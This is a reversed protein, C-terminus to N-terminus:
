YNGAAVITLTDAYDNAYATTTAVTVREKLSVTDANTYGSRSVFAAFSTGNFAGAHTGDAILYESNYSLTGTCSSCSAGTSPVFGYNTAGASLADPTGDFTGTTIPTGPNSASALAGNASKVYATYGLPSNTGVVMNVGASTQISSPDATPVTDSNSSLSFIFTPAVSANVSIQDQNTSAGYIYVPTLTTDIAANSGNESVVTLNYQGASAPNTVTGGAIDFGYLTTANLSASTLGSVTITGGLGAGGSVATASLVGPPATIGAPTSPFGTTAVAPSGATVSFGTPLTVAIKAVSNPATKLKFTVLLDNNASASIGLRGLRVGAQNLQTADAFAPMLLAVVLMTAVLLYRKAKFM